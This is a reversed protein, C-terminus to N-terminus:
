KSPEPLQLKEIGGTVPNLFVQTEMKKNFLEAGLHEVNGFQGMPYTGSAFVKDSNFIKVEVESPVNYRVDMVEKKKKDTVAPTPVTHKDM